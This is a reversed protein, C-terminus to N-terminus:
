VETVAGVASLHATVALLEGDANVAVPPLPASVIEVARSQVHATEVLV